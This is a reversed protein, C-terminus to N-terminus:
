KLIFMKRTASFDGAQLTYFYIGSGVKEGLNDTGDWYASHDKTVYVGAGKNGLHLARVLQGKVDYINITVPVSQALKFPIWTDPNFPNPYNQLLQNELGLLKFVSPYGWKQLLRDLEDISIEGSIYKKGAQSIPSTAPFKDILGVVYQLILAADLASITGDGSVDAIIEDLTNIYPKFVISGEGDNRMMAVIESEDTTGWYNYTANITTSTYNRIAIGSSAVFNNANTLNGGIIISASGEYCGIDFWVNNHIINRIITTKSSSISIGSLKNHHILNDSITATVNGACWLGHGNNQIANLIVTVVSNDNFVAGANINESITNDQIILNVTNWSDIGNHTNRHIANEIISVKADSRCVIGDPNNEIINSNLNVNAFGECCIGDNLNQRIINNKIDVSVSDLCKIGAIVAGMVVNDRIEVESTTGSCVIGYDASGQGDITFDSLSVNHVNNVTVVNGSSATITTNEAGSGLVILDSFLEINEEYVGPLVQVIDKRGSEDIGRQITDYPNKQTGDGTPSGDPSVYIVDAIHAGGYLDGHNEYQSLDDAIGSDFNWYGVLNDLLEPNELPQNMTEQIETQTRAVNWIRVEDIFGDFAEGPSISAGITVSIDNIFPTETESQTYEEVGNVYITVTNGDYMAAVHYWVESLQLAATHVRWTDGTGFYFTPKGWDLRLAYPARYCGLTSDDRKGVIMQFHKSTNTKVWGEITIPYQIDLTASDAVEVYDGDGDLSLVKNAALASPAGLCITLMLCGILSIMRRM